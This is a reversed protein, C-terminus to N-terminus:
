SVTVGVTQALAVLEDVTFTLIARPEWMAAIATLAGEPVGGRRFAPDPLGLGPADTLSGQEVTFLMGTCQEIEEPTDQEVYPIENQDPGAMRFPWVMCPAEAPEAM